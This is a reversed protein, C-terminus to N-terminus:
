IISEAGFFNSKTGLENRQIPLYPLEPSGNTSIASMKFKNNM